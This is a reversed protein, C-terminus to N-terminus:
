QTNIIGHDALQTKRGQSYNSKVIRMDLSDLSLKDVLTIERKTVQYLDSIAPPESWELTYQFGDLIKGTKPEVKLILYDHFLKKTGTFSLDKYEAIFTYVTYDGTTPSFAKKMGNNEYIKSESFLEFLNYNIDSNTAKEQLNYNKSQCFGLTTISVFAILLIAKM